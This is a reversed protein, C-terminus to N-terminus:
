FAINRPHIDTLYIGHSEFIQLIIKVRSWNSGFEELRDQEWIDLVDQPFDPPYDLHASAFDLIYPPRVISMEIVLLTDDFEIMKPVALGAIEDIELEHLRLYCALERDFPIQSVFVKVATHASSLFVTGDKGYGLKSELHLAHNIAYAQLRELPDSM